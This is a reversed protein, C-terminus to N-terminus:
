VSISYFYPSLAQRYLYLLIFSKILRGMDDFIKLNLPPVDGEFRHYEYTLRDTPPLDIIRSSVMAIVMGAM